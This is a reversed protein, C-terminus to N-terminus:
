CELNDDFVGLYYHKIGRLETTHDGVTLVRTVLQCYVNWAGYLALNPYLTDTFTGM